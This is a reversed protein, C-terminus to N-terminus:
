PWAASSLSAADPWPAAPYTRCRLWHILIQDHAVARQEFFAELHALFHEALIVDILRNGAGVLERARHRFPRGLEAPARQPGPRPEVAAGARDDIQRHQAAQVSGTFELLAALARPLVPQSLGLDLFDQELDRDIAAHRGTDVGKSIGPFGEPLQFILLDASAMFGYVVARNAQRDAIGALHWPASM